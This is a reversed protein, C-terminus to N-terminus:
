HLQWKSNLMFEERSPNKQQRQLSFFSSFEQTHSEINKYEIKWDYIIDFVLEILEHNEKQLALKDIHTIVQKSYYLFKDLSSTSEKENKKLELKYKKSKIEELEKNKAKLLIKFNIVKDINDIIHAEKKSLEKIQEDYTKSNKQLELEKEEFIKKWLMDYITLADDKIQINQLISSISKNTTDQRLSYTSHKAWWKWRCNYYHHLTGDRSKSASGTLFGNCHPCKLVKSYFYNPNYNKRREIIPKNIQKEKWKSFEIKVEKKDIEILKIKWRNAKNWIKIDILWKYATRIPKNWTWKSSIIGAYIPKKILEQMYKVDMVKWSRKICWKLNLNEVIEKDSLYGKARAEFM